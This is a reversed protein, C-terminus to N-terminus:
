CGRARRTLQAGADSPRAGYADVDGVGPHSLSAVARAENRFRTEFGPDETLSRLLVNVAVERGLVVDEARWVEGMGGGGLRRVLRYRRDLLTGPGLLARDGRQM